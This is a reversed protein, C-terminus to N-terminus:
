GGIEDFSIGGRVAVFSLEIFNISRNPRIYISAVFRHQEIVENTNNSKDCIVRFDVIGKRGQVDRLFPEVIARFQARTFDDNFEFLQYQAAAAIAKELAIFLRRVNIRDFASPRALLTKDGFLVVGQGRLSVVSNVGAKYLEDRQAQNPNFALKVVNKIQGRNLGGPSYWTDNTFDTRACLGAIDGNLPVWRYKDNYRDYQYKYGTDMVAFSSNANFAVNTRFEIIRETANAGMIIDDTATDRPSVFVVCDRRTEAVNDIVWKAVSASVPGVPILSIDYEEANQFLAFGTQYDGEDAAFDDAGGTLVSETATVLSIFATAEASSGWNTMTAPYDMWWVYKSQNNLVDKYFNTSGDSKRADSAKSVYAYKELVTGAVGSWIGLTDIVAIHLEDNSGGVNSVYSSTDPASDFLSALDLTVENTEGTNLTVTWGTFTAADAMFVGISNGMKGPYKAAFLGVANSGDAYTDLYHQTNNIVITNGGVDPTEVANLAGATEARVTQLRNSYALFNAANLWAAANGDYPKGFRSVLENESTILTPELVPGWAFPAVVAGASTSVAPVVTTLDTEVISVGPSLTFAM